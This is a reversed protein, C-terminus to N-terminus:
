PSIPLPCIKAFSRKITTGTATKISAVRAVGDAGPHLTTIRGLAWKLPPQNDEKIVVLDDVKITGQQTRWKCRQQLESIYERSWRAWFHQQLQQIRQWHSLRREPLYTVDPDAASTLPRGIIFHAPTLPVFDSPDSSLPSIPRSNLVAEIQVLLTYFQEFTLRADGAVRRLHHKASKVGAEWLGGFHPSHAPIFSWSIGENEISSTLDDSNEVLFKGLIQLERNAGVFNTGNDSFMQAPKGRRAIFRRFAALFAEKTLDSVTEIHIARTLFCVFLSIYCKIVKAGRGSRDKIMFPGAYDVGTTYFPPAPNVRKDPLNGMIPATLRPKAKFCPICDRVIKRALNRGALPWFQDRISSLLHQPGAHLLRKHERDFLLKTFYHNSSLLVPHKKEYHFNSNSLRGGVRIINGEDLFPNLNVIKSKSNVSGGKALANIEDSFSERQALKVLCLSASRIEQSTLPGFRRESKSKRCNSFFRQCYGIIRELKTLNSYNKFIIVPVGTAVKYSQVTGKLEPLNHEPTNLAPWASDDFQLWRPGCWYIELSSM